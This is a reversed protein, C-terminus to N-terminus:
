VQVIGSWFFKRYEDAVVLTNSSELFLIGKNAFLQTFRNSDKCDEDDNNERSNGGKQGVMCLCCLGSAISLIHPQVRKLVKNIQCQEVYIKISM